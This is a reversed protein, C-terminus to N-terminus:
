GDGYATTLRELTALLELAQRHDDIAADWRKGEYVRDRLVWGASVPVNFLATALDRAVVRVDADPHGSALIQVGRTQRDREAILRDLLEGAGQDTAPANMALREPDTALLYERIPGIAEADRRLQERRHAKDQARYNFTTTLAAGAFAGIGGAVAVLVAATADSMVGMRGQPADWRHQQVAPHMAASREHPGTVPSARVTHHGIQHTETPVFM